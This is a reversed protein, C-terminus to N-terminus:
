RRWWRKSPLAEAPVEAGISSSSKIYFKGEVTELTFKHDTIPSGNYARTKFDRKGLVKGILIKDRDEFAYWKGIFINSDAKM